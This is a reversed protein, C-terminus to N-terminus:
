IGARNRHGLSMMLWWENDGRGGWMLYDRVVMEVEAKTLRTSVELAWLIERPRQWVRARGGHRWGHPGLIVRVFPVLVRHALRGVEHREAEEEGRRNEGQEVDIHTPQSRMDRVLM